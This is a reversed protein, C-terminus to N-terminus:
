STRQAMAGPPFPSASLTSSKGGVRRLPMWALPSYGASCTTSARSLPTECSASQRESCSFCILSSSLSTGEASSFAHMDTSPFGGGMKCAGAVEVKRRKSRTSGGRMWVEASCRSRSSMRFVLLSGARHVRLYGVSDSTCASGQTSKPGGESSCTLCADMMSRLIMEALGRLPARCCPSSCTISNVIRWKAVSAYSSGSVRTTSHPLRSTSLTFPRVSPGVSVWRARGDPPMRSPAAGMPSGVGRRWVSSSGLGEATGTSYSILLAARSANVELCRPKSTNDQGSGAPTMEGPLQALTGSSKWGSSARSYKM